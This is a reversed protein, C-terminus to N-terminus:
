LNRCSYSVRATVNKGAFDRIDSLGEYRMLRGTKLDYDVLIESGLFRLVASKAELKVRLQGAPAGPVQVAEFRFWDNLEPAMLKFGLRKGQKLLGLREVIWTDIGADMVADAPIANKKVRTKGKETVAIQWEQGMRKVEVRMGIHNQNLLFETLYGQKPYRLIKQGIIQGQPGKYVVSDLLRAGDAGLSRYREEIYFNKSDKLDQVRGSCLLDPDAFATAVSMAAFFVTLGFTKM